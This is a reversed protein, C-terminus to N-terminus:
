RPVRLNSVHPDYDEHEDPWVAELNSPRSDWRDGNLHHVHRPDWPSDLIGHAYASLRHLYVYRDRGARSDWVRIRPYHDVDFEVRPRFQIRTM